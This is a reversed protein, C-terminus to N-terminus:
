QRKRKLRVGVGLAGAVLVGVVSTPEPVESAPEPVKAVRYAHNDSEFSPSTSSLVVKDIVQGAEAFFNTYLTSLYPRLFSSGTFSQILTNNSYFAISNYEDLSGWYLGFYDIPQAFSITVPNTGEASSLPAVTLYKTADGSPTVHVVNPDYISGSVVAPGFGPASYVVPGSTPVGAEFDITTVGPVSSIQGQGPVPIGGITVTIASTANYAELTSIFNDSTLTEVPLAKLFGIVPQGNGKNAMLELIYRKQEDTSAPALIELLEEEAFNRSDPSDPKISIPRNLQRQMQDYSVPQKLRAELQLRLAELLIRSEPSLFSLDGTEAFYELDAIGVSVETSDIYFNIRNAALAPSAISWSFSFTLSWYIGQIIWNLLKSKPHPSLFALDRFKKATTSVAARTQIPTM